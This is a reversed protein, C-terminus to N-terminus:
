RAAGPAAALGRRGRRGTGPQGSATIVLTSSGPASCAPAARQREIQEDDQARRQGAAPQRRQEHAGEFALGLRARAMRARFDVRGTSALSITRSALASRPAISASRALDSNMAWILWSSRVGSFATIPKESMM